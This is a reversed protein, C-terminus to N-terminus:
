LLIKRVAGEKMPSETATRGPSSASAARSARSSATSTPRGRTKTAKFAKIVAKRAVDQGEEGEEDADDGRARAAGNTDPAPLVADSRTTSSGATAGTKEM